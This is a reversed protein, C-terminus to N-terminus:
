TWRAIRREILQAAEVYARDLDEVGSESGGIDVGFSV